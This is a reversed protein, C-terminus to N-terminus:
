ACCPALTGKYIFKKLILIHPNLLRQKFYVSETETPQKGDFYIFLLQFYCFPFQTTLDNTFLGVWGTVM